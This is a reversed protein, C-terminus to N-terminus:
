FHAGELDITVEVFGDPKILCGDPFFSDHGNGANNQEAIHHAVKRPIQLNQKFASSQLIISM